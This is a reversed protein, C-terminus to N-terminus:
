NDTEFDEVNGCELTDDNGDDEYEVCIRFYHRTDDDLNFVDIEFNDNGSFNSAVSQKQIDDDNEDINSFRNENEVDDIDDEDEGWVFFVRGNNFDNMDVSGRLEASDDDIDSASDTEVDPENDNDDDDDTTFEELSGCELTEDGNRDEYEVCLIFYYDEDEELNNVQEEFDDRDDFNREVREIEFDDSEEDDKVDDYEDYDDEVDEIQSEDQGYVFFVIGNEANNMDVSGRLEASEDEIDRASRTRVTPRWSNTSHTNFNGNFSSYVPVNTYGFGPTGGTFNNNVFGSNSFSNNSFQNLSQSGFYLNLLYEYLDRENQFGSLSSGGNMQFPPSYSFENWNNGQNYDYNDIIVQASAHTAFALSAVAVVLVLNKLLTKM